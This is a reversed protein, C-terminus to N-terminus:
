TNYIYSFFSILMLRTDPSTLPLLCQFLIHLILSFLPPFLPYLYGPGIMNPVDFYIYKEKPQSALQLNEHETTLLNSGEMKDSCILEMLSPIHNKFDPDLKCGM